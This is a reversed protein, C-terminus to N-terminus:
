SILNRIEFDEHSQPQRLSPLVVQGHRSVIQLLRSMEPRVAERPLHANGGRVRAEIRIM